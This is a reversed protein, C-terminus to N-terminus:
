TEASETIESNQFLRIRRIMLLQDELRVDDLMACQRSLMQYWGRWFEGASRRLDELLARRFEAPLFTLGAFFACHEFQKALRRFAACVADYDNDELADNVARRHRACCRRTMRNVTEGIREGLFPLVGAADACTGRRILAIEEATVSRAALIELCELWGAYDAPPVTVTRQGTEESM